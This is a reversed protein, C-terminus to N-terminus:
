LTRSNCVIPQAHQKLCAPNQHLKQTDCTTDDSKMVSVREEMTSALAPMWSDGVKTLTCGAGTM